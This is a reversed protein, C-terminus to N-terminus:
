KVPYTFNPVEGSIYIECLPYESNFNYTSNDSLSVTSVKADVVAVVKYVSQNIGASILETKIEVSASGVFYMNIPVSFGHGKLLNYDLLNGIPIFCWENGNIEENIRESLDAKIVSTEYSNLETFKHNGNEDTLSQYTNEIDLFEDKIIENITKEAYSAAMQNIYETPLLKVRNEIFVFLFIFISIYIIIRYIPKLRRRKRRRKM